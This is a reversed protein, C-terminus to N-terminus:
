GLDPLGHIRTEASQPETTKGQCHQHFEKKDEEAGSGVLQEGTQNQRTSGARKNVADPPGVRDPLGRSTERVSHL